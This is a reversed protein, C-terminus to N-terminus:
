EVHAWNVRRIIYSIATHTVGYERALQKVAFEGSAHKRRIERVQIETLKARGHKEGRRIADASMQEEETPVVFLGCARLTFKEFPM